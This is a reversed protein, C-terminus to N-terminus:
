YHIKFKYEFRKRVRNKLLLFFFIEIKKHAIAYNTVIIVNSKTILSFIWSIKEKISLITM